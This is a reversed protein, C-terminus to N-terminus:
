CTCSSQLILFLNHTRVCKKMMMCVQGYAYTAYTVCSGRQACTNYKRLTQRLSRFSRTAAYSRSGLSLPCARMAGCPVYPGVWVADNCNHTVITDLRNVSQCNHAVITDLTPLGTVITDSDGIRAQYWALIPSESVITATQTATNTVIRYRSTM